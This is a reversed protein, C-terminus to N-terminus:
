LDAGSMSMNRPDGSRLPIRDGSGQGDRQNKGGGVFQRFLVFAGLCILIGGIIGLWFRSPLMSSIGYTSSISSPVASMSIERRHPSAMGGQEFSPHGKTQWKGVNGVTSHEDHELESHDEYIRHFDKRLRGHDEHLLRKDERITARDSPTPGSSGVHQGYDAVLHGSDRLLLAKDEFMQGRDKFIESKDRRVSAMESKPVDPVAQMATLAKGKELKAKDGFFHSKDELLRSRDEVLASRDSAVDRARNGGRESRAHALSARDTFLRAKDQLTRAHDDLTLARARAKTWPGKREQLTRDLTKVDRKLVVSPIHKTRVMSKMHKAELVTTTWADSPAACGLVVAILVLYALSSSAPM